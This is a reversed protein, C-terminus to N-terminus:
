EHTVCPTIGAVMVHDPRLQSMTEPTSASTAAGNQRRDLTTAHIAFPTPRARKAFTIRTATMDDGTDNPQGTM